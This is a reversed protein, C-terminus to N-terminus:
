MARNRLAQMIDARQPFPLAQFQDWVMRLSMRDTPFVCAHLCVTTFMHKDGLVRKSAKLTARFDRSLEVFVSNGIAIDPMVVAPKSM